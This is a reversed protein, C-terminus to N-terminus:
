AAFRAEFAEEFDNGGTVPEEPARRCVIRCDDIIAAIDAAGASALSNEEGIEVGGIGKACRSSAIGGEDGVAPRFATFTPCNEKSVKGCTSCRPNFNEAISPQVDARV